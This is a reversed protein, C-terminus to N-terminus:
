CLPLSFLCEGVPQFLYKVGNQTLGTSWDLLGTWHITVGPNPAIDVSNTIQMPIPYSTYILRTVWKM